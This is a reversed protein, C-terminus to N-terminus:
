MKSGGDGDVFRVGEEVVNVGSLVEVGFDSRLKRVGGAVVRVGNDVVKKM